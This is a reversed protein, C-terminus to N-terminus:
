PATYNPAVEANSDDGDQNTPIINLTATPQQGEVQAGPIFEDVYAWFVLESDDPFNITMEQNDNIMLVMQDYVAPDFACIISFPTLTKLTKPAVTRWATNRMTTADNSGGGSVGPPTLEKEALINAMTVGSGILASTFAITTQYGDNQIVM